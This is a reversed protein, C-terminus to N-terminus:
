QSEDASEAWPRDVAADLARIDDQLKSIQGAVGDNWPSEASPAPAGRGTKESATETRDPAHFHRVVNGIGGMVVVAACLAVLWVRKSWKRDSAAPAGCLSAPLPVVAPQQLHALCQEFLRAVEGASQFRERLDKALLRDIISVLWEPVDANIERIPRPVDDSIRRLVGMTTEARFPARGTCLTYLVSGLSFLDSRTDISDGRAQEPSMFLPTGAIIGSRTLSADDAARALGFDTITLREVGDDLLINAPKIDRHVLGQAHAAALGAATQMGIRLVQMPALTGQGELRKQLSQGRVYPMVLYPLGGAEAVAHIAIVNEHVVAAAARAERAFRARAAAGSALHPALVKIAVYRNLPVDLGKLVIGMGGCGIIGAIEYGGFRGLMRPDDTPALFNRIADAAVTDADHREITPAVSSPCPAGSIGSDSDVRSLADHAENWLEPEAALSELRQRCDACLALHEELALREVDALEDHLLLDLAGADCAPVNKSSNM